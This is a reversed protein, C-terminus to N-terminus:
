RWGVLAAEWCRRGLEPGIRGRRCRDGVTDGFVDVYRTFTPEPMGCPYHDAGLLYRADQAGCRRRACVGSPPHTEALLMAPLVSESM